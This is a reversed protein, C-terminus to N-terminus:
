TVSCARSLREASSSSRWATSVTPAVEEASSPLDVAASGAPSSARSSAAWPTSTDASCLAASALRGSGLAAMGGRLHAHPRHRQRGSITGTEMQGTTHQPGLQSRLGRWGAYSAGPMHFNSAVMVAIRATASLRARLMHRIRSSVSGGIPLIGSQNGISGADM